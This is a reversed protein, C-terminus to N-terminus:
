DTKIEISMQAGDLAGSFEQASDDLLMRGKVSVPKDGQQEGFLDPLLGDQGTATGTVGPEPDLWGSDPVAGFVPSPQVVEPRDRLRLDLSDPKGQEVVPPAEESQRETAPIAPVPAIEPIAPENGPEDAMRPPECASLLIALMLTFM